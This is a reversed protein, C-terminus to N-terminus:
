QKVEIRRIPVYVIVNCDDFHALMAATQFDRRVQAISERLNRYVQQAQPNIRALAEEKLASSEILEMLEMFSMEATAEGPYLITFM